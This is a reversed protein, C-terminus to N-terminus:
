GDGLKQHYGHGVQALLIYLDVCKIITVLSRDYYVQKQLVTM